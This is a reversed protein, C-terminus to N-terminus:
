QGASAAIPPSQSLEEEAITLDKAADILTAVKTPALQSLEEATTDAIDGLDRAANILPSVRALQADKSKIEEKALRLEERASELDGKLARVDSKLGEIEKVKDSYDNAKLASLWDRTGQDVSVNNPDEVRRRVASLEGTLGDLKKDANENQVTINTVDDGIKGITTIDDGVRGIHTIIYTTSFAVVLWGGAGIAFAGVLIQVIEPWQTQSLQQLAVLPDVTEVRPELSALRAQGLSVLKLGAVGVATGIALWTKAGALFAAVSRVLEVRRKDKESLEGSTPPPTGIEKEAM